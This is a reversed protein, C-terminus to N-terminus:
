VSNNLYFVKSLLRLVIFFLTAFITAATANIIVAEALTPHRINKASSGFAKFFM